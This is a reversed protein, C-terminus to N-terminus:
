RALQSGTIITNAGSENQVTITVNVAGRYGQGNKALIQHAHDLYRRTEPLLVSPDDGADRFRALYQPTSNYLVLLEDLNKAKKSFDAVIAQAAAAEYNPDTLRSPDFGYARATAPMIQYRGIAGKPSVARDGSGELQRILGLIDFGTGTGFASPTVAISSPITGGPRTRVTGMVGTPGLNQGFTTIKQNPDYPTAKSYIEGAAAGVAGGVLGGLPGAVAGGVRAGALGGGIAPLSIHLWKMWGEIGAAFAGIDASLRGVNRGFSTVDKEFAPSKLYGAFRKLADSLGTLWGQDKAAEFFTKVVDGVSDSLQSLAPALPTLGDIFVAEIKHGARTLQTSFDQWKRLTDEGLALGGPGRDAQYSRSLDNIESQPTSKIRKLDEITFGLEGLRRAGLLTQQWGEEPTRDVLQKVLPILEAGIQASDKGAIQGPTLGAAYLAVRKSYDHLAENIGSLVSNPDVLRQYNIQFAQQEGYTTGLGLSSRRGAAALNAFKDLGYLGGLGVLGSIVSSISAWKLLSVTADGIRKAFKEASTAIGSWSREQSHIQVTQEKIGKGMETNVRMAVFMAAVLDSFRLASKDVSEALNEVTEASAGSADAANKTEKSAEAIRRTVDAWASGSKKVEEKYRDFLRLFERFKTDDIPITLIPQDAM